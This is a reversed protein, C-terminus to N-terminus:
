SGSAGPLGARTSIEEAEPDRPVEAQAMAASEFPPRAYSQKKLDDRSLQLCIGEDDVHAIVSVPLYIDKPFMRGKQVVLYPGPMNRLSVIGVWRGDADYVPTGPDVHQQTM